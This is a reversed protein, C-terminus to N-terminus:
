TSDNISKDELSKDMKNKKNRKKLEENTLEVDEKIGDICSENINGESDMKSLDEKEAKERVTDYWCFKLSILVAIVIIISISLGM